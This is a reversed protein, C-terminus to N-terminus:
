EDVNMEEMERQRYQVPCANAKVEEDKQDIREEPAGAPREVVITAVVTGNLADDLIKERLGEEIEHRLIERCDNCKHNRVGSM